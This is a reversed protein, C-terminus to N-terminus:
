FPEVILPKDPVDTEVKQNPFFQWGAINDFPVTLEEHDEDAMFVRGDGFGVNKLKMCCVEEMWRMNDAEVMLAFGITGNRASVVVGHKFSVRFFGDSPFM